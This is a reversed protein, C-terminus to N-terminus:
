LAQNAPSSKGNKPSKQWNQHFIPNEFFPMKLFDMRKAIKICTNGIVRDPSPSYYLTPILTRTKWLLCKRGRSRDAFLSNHRSPSSIRPPSRSATSGLIESDFRQSEWRLLIELGRRGSPRRPKSITGETLVCRLHLSVNSARWGHRGVAGDSAFNRIYLRM